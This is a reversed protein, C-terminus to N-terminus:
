VSCLAAVRLMDSESLFKERPKGVLAGRACEESDIRQYQQLSVFATQGPADPSRAPFAAPPSPQPLEVRLLEPADEAVAVATDLADIRTTNLIGTPGRKLWGAVFLRPHGVVRGGVNPVIARAEDFPVDAAARESKYGTSSIFLDCDVGM